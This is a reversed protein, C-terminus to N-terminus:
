AFSSAHRLDETKLVHGPMEAAQLRQALHRDADAFPSTRPRIPGFPAPLVVSTLVTQPTVGALEPVTVKSPASMVRM